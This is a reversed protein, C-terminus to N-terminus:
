FLLKKFALINKISFNVFMDLFKINLLVALVFLESMKSFTIKYFHRFKCCKLIFGYSPMFIQSVRYYLSIAASFRGFLQLFLCIAPWVGETQGM